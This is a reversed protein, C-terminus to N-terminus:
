RGKRRFHCRVAARVEAGAVALSVSCLRTCERSFRRNSGQGREEITQQQQSVANRQPTTVINQLQRPHQSCLEGVVTVGLVARKLVFMNYPVCIIDNHVTLFFFASFLLNGFRGEM